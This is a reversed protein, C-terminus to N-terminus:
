YGQNQHLFVLFLRVGLGSLDPSISVLLIEFLKLFEAPIDWSGHDCARLDEM